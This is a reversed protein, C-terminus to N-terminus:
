ISKVPLKVIDDFEAVERMIFPEGYRTGIM